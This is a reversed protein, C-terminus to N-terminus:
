HLTSGLCVIECLACLTGGYTESRATRILKTSFYRASPSPCRISIRIKFLLDPTLLEYALDLWKPAEHLDRGMRGPNSELSSIRALEPAM